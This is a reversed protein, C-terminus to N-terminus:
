FRWIKYAPLSPHHWTNAQSSLSGWFPTINTVHDM